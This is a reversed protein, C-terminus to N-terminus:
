CLPHSVTGGEGNVWTFTLNSGPNADAIVPAIQANQGCNMERTTAGKVPEVSDVLRIASDNNGSNPVDGQFVQGDIAVSDLWGHAAVLPLLLALTLLKSQM